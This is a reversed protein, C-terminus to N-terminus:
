IEHISFLKLPVIKVGIDNTLIISNKYLEWSLQFTKDFVGNNEETILKNMANLTYITNTQKKRHVSITNPLKNFKDDTLEVNYTLYLEKPNKTNSFIFIKENLIIYNQKILDVCNLYESSTTFTCLLQKKM